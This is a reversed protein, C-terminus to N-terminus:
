FPVPLLFAHHEYLGLLGHWGTYQTLFVAFAYLGAAVVMLPRVAWVLAPHSPEARKSGRHYAWATVLKTPFITLVFLAAPLWLADRPVLEVKLLYLPLALLLTSFLALFHAVPARRYIDKVSRLDFMQRLQGHVAFHLQLFPLRVIVAVLLLGGIVAAPGKRGVAILTTPLALWVMAGLYGRFGLWFTQAPQLPEVFRKLRERTRSLWDGARLESWLQRTARLPRFFHVIQGGQSLAVLAVWGVAVAAIVSFVFLGKVSPAGPSILIADQRLAIVLRPLLSVLWAGVVFQGVRSAQSVGVFADRLRGSAAFRRAANLLYGLAFFQLVPVTAILALLLLASVGGFLADVFRGVGRGLRLSAPSVAAAMTGRDYRDGQGAALQQSSAM